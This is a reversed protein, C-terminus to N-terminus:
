SSLVTSAEPVAQAASLWSSLIRQTSDGVPGCLSFDPLRLSPSAAAALLESLDGVPTALRRLPQPLPSPGMYFWPVGLAQAAWCSSGPVGVVVASAAIAQGASASTDLPFGRFAGDPDRPHPRVRAEGPFAALFDFIWEQGLPSQDPGSSLVLVGSGGGPAPLYDNGPWGVIEAVRAGTCSLVVPRSARSVCTVSAWYADISPPSPTLYALECFALPVGRGLALEALESTHSSALGNVAVLDAQGVVRPDDTLSFSCGTPVRKLDPCFQVLQAGIRKAERALPEFHYTGWPENAGVLFLVGYFYAPLYAPLDPKVERLLSLSLLAAVFLPM